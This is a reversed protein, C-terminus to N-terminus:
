PASPASPAPLYAGMCTRLKAMAYRLRSKATEFGVGLARALEDVPLEDDHHLLFATKQAAPLQELCDLLRQGARRWFLADDHAAAHGDARPWQQWPTGAPTYPEPEDDGFDIAVERGSTRLCDVARHHALTFLWTRFRAAGPAYHERARVVRLWTDQFVEDAQHALAPGLVRRVFRYLSVRHRAYLAEFAAADGRAFALMLADDIGHDVVHDVGHDAGEGTDRGTDRGRDDAADRASTRGMAISDAVANCRHEM